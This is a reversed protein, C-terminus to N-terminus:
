PVNLACALADYCLALSRLNTRANNIPERGEEIACLLEAMAGHFGQVFWTGRLEPVAFGAATHLTV